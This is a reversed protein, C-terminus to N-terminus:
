GFSAAKSTRRSMAQASSIDREVVYARVPQETRAALTSAIQATPNNGGEVGTIQPPTVGGVQPASVGGGVSLSPASAPASASDSSNIQKIAKAAGAITSAISLGASITNIATFPLGGTLPLAAVAKANALATNAIIKGISAAQEIIIGAIAVKKNKGAIQQLLSGFQGALDLYANQIEAKADLEAMDIAMIENSAARAIAVRQQQTLDEQQLLLAEKQAILERRKDFSLSEVALENELGLLREDFEAKQIEKIKDLREKEKADEEEDFKKNIAAIDKRYNEELLTFDTIGAAILKARQEIFVAERKFVEADRSELSQIYQEVLIKNAEDLLKQQEERQKKDEEEKKKRAEDAKRASEEALKKREEEAKKAAEKEEETLRKAGEKFANAGSEFGKNVGDVVATGIGTATNKANDVFSDFGTSISKGVDSLGEKILELDFTFVGKLVKGASGAVDTLTKFANVFNNVVFGVLEKGIGFLATFTGTLVGVTTSLVKMVKESSLLEIVLDAIMMAIPEIVAFLGNMIKTFAESIQNLKAQGEETRSLSEKLAVFAATIGALLAIIPNAMFVKMTGRLGELSQGVLGAVGPQAALAETFRLSNIETEKLRDKLGALEKSLEKFEKSKPDVKGLTDQTKGIAENLNEFEGISTKVTRNLLEMNDQGTVETDIQIKYKETNEAM